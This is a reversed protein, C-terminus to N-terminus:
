TPCDTGNSNQVHLPRSWTLAFSCTRPRKDLMCSAKWWTQEPLEEDVEAYKEITVEEGM